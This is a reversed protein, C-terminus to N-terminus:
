EARWAAIQHIMVANGEPDHVIAMKCIGRGEEDKNEWVDMAIQAGRAKLRAVDAEIDDSEIAMYVTPSEVMKHSAGDLAVTKGDPAKFECWMEGYDASTELGLVEGYFKKATQMDRAPHAVFAIKTLM